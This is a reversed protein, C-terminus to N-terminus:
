VAWCGASLNLPASPVPQRRSTGARCYPLFSLLCAASWLFLCQRPSSQSSSLSHLHKKKSPVHSEEMLKCFSLIIPAQSTFNRGFCNLREPDANRSSPRATLLGKAPCYLVAELYELASSVSWGVCPRRFWWQRLTFPKVQGQIHTKSSQLVMCLSQYLVAMWLPSNAMDAPVRGM